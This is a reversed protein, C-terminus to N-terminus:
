LLDDGEDTLNQGTNVLIAKEEPVVETIQGEAVNALERASMGTKSLVNNFVQLALSIERRESVEVKSPAEYGLVKDIQKAASIRNTTDTNADERIGAYFGIQDALTVGAVKQLRDRIEAPTRPDIIEPNHDSTYGALLKAKHPPMVGCLVAYVIRSSIKETQLPSKSLPFLEPTGMNSDEGADFPNLGGAKVKKKKGQM